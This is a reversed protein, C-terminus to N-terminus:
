GVKVCVFKLPFLYCGGEAGANPRQTMVSQRALQTGVGFVVILQVCRIVGYVDRGDARGSGTRLTYPSPGPPVKHLYLCTSRVVGCLTVSAQFCVIWLTPRIYHSVNFM